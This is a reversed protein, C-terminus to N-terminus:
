TLERENTVIHILEKPKDKLYEKLFTPFAKYKDLDEMPIWYMSEKVGCTTSNSNLEKTGRPKMLFYFSLEHCKCGKLTGGDGDFFNEHIVALRDVEYHVGTEEFVERIVADEATENVHVGGGISYLYDDIENGAFLVCDEEVIIAAARYRFWNDEKQFGCDFTMSETTTIWFRKLNVNRDPELVTSEYVGGNARITKESGVNGDVCSILVKELGIEKCFPLVMALMKKAYGKRREDPRISYGIHGGFKELFDNFYHRVQIMGVLRNDFERVFLFQTAPVFNDPVKTPDECDECIKIYESPNEIRRLPGTGDMSDGAELFAKRYEVIQEAYEMTPKTLMFTEM